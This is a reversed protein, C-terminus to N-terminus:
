KEVWSGRGSCPPCPGTVSWTYTTKKGLTYTYDNTHSQSSSSVGTGECWQCTKVSGAWSARSPDLLDEGIVTAEFWEDTLRVSPKQDPFSNGASRSLERARIAIQGRLWDTRKVSVLYLRNGERVYYYRGVLASYASAPYKPDGKPAAVTAVSQEVAKPKIMMRDDASASAGPDSSVSKKWGFGPQPLHKPYSAQAGKNEYWAGFNGLFHQTMDKFASKQQSNFDLYGLRPFQNNKLRITGDWLAFFDIEVLRTAALRCAKSKSAQSLNSAFIGYIFDQYAKARARSEKAQKLANNYANTLAIPAPQIEQGEPDIELKRGNLQVPICEKTFSTEGFNDYIFPVVATNKRNIIGFKGAKKAVALEKSSDTNPYICPVCFEFLEQYEFGIATQGQPNLLGYQRQKADQALWEGSTLKQIFSFKPPVLSKGQRDCLGWLGPKGKAVASNRLPYGIFDGGQNYSVLYYGAGGICEYKMPVVLKGDKEIVGWKAGRLYGERDLTGGNSVAFSGYDLAEMQTYQCPVVLTGQDNIIGWKGYNLIKKGKATFGQNVPAFGSHDFEGALSFGCPIVITGRADKFGFRGSSDTTPSPFEAWSTLALFPFLALSLVFNKGYSM